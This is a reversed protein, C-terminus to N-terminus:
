NEFPADRGHRREHGAMRRAKSIVKRIFIKDRDTLKSREAYRLYFRLRDTNSFLRGPASFHLQAIDKIQFRRGLLIPRFARALDILYFRNSDDHFIHSFYLDRHRYGTKHFRAVFEALSTIFNRRHQLNDATAPAAFCEPLRRELSEADPIKETIIFSRKEFIKGWQEGCCLTKPTNIGFEKLRSATNFEIMACSTRGRAGLWNKIQLSIPPRDYRKMFVTTPEPSAPADIDFQFRSRFRALNSKSLNTVPEFSFVAGVSTLGLKRLASEYETDIFFSDSFEVFSQRATITTNKRGGELLERAADCVMEVTIARMCLHEDEACNPKSCPACPVNGVIQIESECGTRTWAPDNPGFLTIVKRQLALAMHRPGTDNTIVLDALSFLVKLEAISVPREGLNVLRHGSSDCIAEAIKRERPEPAVSIVVTASHDGILRDATQAFRGAPWCKSSGFAGGPVLVVLPGKAAALEPLKSRLHERAGQKVPLELNRDAVDAGLWSAAALYYDIMPHPKFRGSTLRPAYLKDTLLFGRNQRAYGVRTPIGAMFVALASALSNKFLIAHSFKHRRLRAAIRFPNKTENEMWEDNFDGPSLTERVVKNALFWIRSSKFCERIARLAPTCLIADGMPSPLWVLVNKDPTESRM